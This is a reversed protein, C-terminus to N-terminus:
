RFCTLSDWENSQERGCIVNIEISLLAKCKSSSLQQWIVCHSSCVIIANRRCRSNGNGRLHVHMTSVWNAWQVVCMPPLLLLSLRSLALSLFSENFWHFQWLITKSEQFISQECRLGYCQFQVCSLSSLSSRFIGRFVFANECGFATKILKKDFELRRLSRILVFFCGQCRCFHSIFHILLRWLPMNDENRNCKTAAASQFPLSCFLQFLNNALKSIRNAFVNISSISSSFFFFVIRMCVRTSSVNKIYGFRKITQQPKAALISAVSHLLFYSTQHLAISHLCERWQQRAIFKSKVM